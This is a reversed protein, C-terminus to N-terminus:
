LVRTSETCIHALLDMTPVGPGSLDDDGGGSAQTAEVLWDEFWKRRQASGKEPAQRSEGDGLGLSKAEVKYEEPVSGGNDKIQEVLWDYRMEVVELVTKGGRNCMQEYATYYAKKGFESVDGPIIEVTREMGQTVSDLLVVMCSINDKSDTDIAKRCVKTAALAPDLGEKLCQAVVEVVEANSFNGESVGDCVLLLFDSGDCEFQKLEPDITVKHFEPGKPSTKLSHDGFGRSVALDGDVRAVSGTCGSEVTGGAAEIRAREEPMDPKHDTTLGQDTGGGDVITGDRRGLLTRSDGSNIVRLQHKSGAAPKKVICMTATSGDTIGAKKVDEDVRFLMNRVAADDKPCGEEELIEALRKSVFASCETGGHGDFVGFFAWDDKLFILHSDEMQGRYGNMEAIGVHFSKNSVRELVANDVPKRLDQGM